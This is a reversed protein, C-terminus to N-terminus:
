SIRKALVSQNADRVQKSRAALISDHAAIIAQKVRQAYTRVGAYEDASPNDWVMSRPMRGTNLFFPAYGTTDSRALNIAFEIVPLKITWDRQTPGICQRLMQAVTRNARETSGDSEPHYASSMRLEVGVLRHLHTWFTSTFLSDRDSVIARPMGHHKYVEDFVLEAVQRATYNTRSPVLHVMGTLLDIIVTISDYTGDRNMSKPLPGVFDIGIVEWPAKPVKLSHLLGYPRQNSPKSRKCTQCTDCYQRVDAAMTKWWFQSRLLTLTKYSGLHALLSHAHSIILERASRGDVLVAPVCLLKDDREKLFVLGDQVCFNKFHKPQELIKRFFPDTEYQGRIAALFDIGDTSDALYTMFAERTDLREDQDMQTRSSRETAAPAEAQALPAEEPADSERQRPAPLEAAQEGGEQGDKRPGHLVVRRVRKAFERSTEPRGSEPPLVARKAQRRGGAGPATRGGSGADPLAAASRTKRRGPNWRGQVNLRDNDPGAVTVLAQYRM